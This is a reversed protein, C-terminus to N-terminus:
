GPPGNLLFAERHGESTVEGVSIFALESARQCKGAPCKEPVTVHRTTHPTGEGLFAPCCTFQWPTRKKLVELILESLEDCLFRCHFCFEPSNDSKEYFKGSLNWCPRNGLGLGAFPISPWPWPWDWFMSGEERSVAQEGGFYVQRCPKM